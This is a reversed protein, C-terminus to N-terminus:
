TNMRGLVQPLTERIPLFDQDLICVVAGTAKAYVNMINWARLLMPDTEKAPATITDALTRQSMNKDM